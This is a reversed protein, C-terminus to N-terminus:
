HHLQAGVLEPMAGFIEENATGSLTVNLVVPESIQMIAALTMNKRIYPTLSSKYSKASIANKAIINENPAGSKMEIVVMTHLKPTGISIAVNIKQISAKLSLSPVQTFTKLLM